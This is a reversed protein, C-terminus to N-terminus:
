DQTFSHVGSAEYVLNFLPAVVKEDHPRTGEVEKVKSKENHFHIVEGALQNAEKRGHSAIWQACAWAAGAVDEVHVTHTPNKGPSWRHSTIHTIHIFIPWLVFLSKM